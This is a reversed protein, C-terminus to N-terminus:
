PTCFFVTCLCACVCVCKDFICLIMIYYFTSSPMNCTRKQSHLQSLSWEMVAAPIWPSQVNLLNEPQIHYSNFRLVPFRMIQKCICNNWWLALHWTWSEPTTFTRRLFGTSWQKQPLSGKLSNLCCWCLNDISTSVKPIRDCTVMPSWPIQLVIQQHFFPSSHEPVAKCKRAASPCICARAARPSWGDVSSTSFHHFM